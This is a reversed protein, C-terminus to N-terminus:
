FLNAFANGLGLWFNANQGQQQQKLQALQISQQTLDTPSPAQGIAAMGLQAANLPLQYLQGSRALLEDRRQQEEARTQAGLSASQAAGTVAGAGLQNVAQNLMQLFELDGRAAADQAQPIYQLLQQAEQERSRQENIQKYALDNQNANREKDFSANVQRLLDQAIGSTPDFGRAGINDLARKLAAQRDSEIPDLAQTRLIEQETGTYAPGQLKTARDNVYALMKDLSTQAQAKREQLQRNAEIQAAQQQQYMQTQQDLLRALAERSPDNVPQTLEAIRQQLYSEFQQTSPDSFQSTYNYNTVGGIGTTTGGTGGEGTSGTGTDGGPQWIWNDHGDLMKVFQGNLMIGKHYQDNRQDLEANVGLSKLTAVIQNLASPDAQAGRLNKRAIFASVFQQPSRGTQNWLDTWENTTDTKSGDETTDTATATTWFSPDDWRLASIAHNVADGHNENKQRNATYMNMATLYDADSVKTPNAQKAVHTRFAQNAAEREAPSALTPAPAPPPAPASPAPMNPVTQDPPDATERGTEWDIGM